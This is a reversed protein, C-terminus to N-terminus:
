SMRKTLNCEESLDSFMANVYVKSVLMKKTLKIIEGAASLHILFCAKCVIKIHFLCPEFALRTGWSCLALSVRPPLFSICVFVKKFVYCRM